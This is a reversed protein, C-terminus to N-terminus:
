LGWWWAAIWWGCIHAMVLGALLLIDALGSLWRKILDFITPIGYRDRYYDTFHTM